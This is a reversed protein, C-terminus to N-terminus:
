EAGRLSAVAGAIDRQRMFGEGILAADVGIQEIYRMDQPTRIASESVICVEKPLSIRELLRETTHLDEQFTKLDRNNIGLMDPQRNMCMVREMEQANHVEVLSQLGVAQAIKHLANLEEDDLMAAILLVADAGWYKAEHIQYADFIFDKRLLPIKAIARIAQLYAADGQFFDQETLVSMAQVDSKLYAQAIAVPDFDERILGKSPSAKKVEAIISIKEYEKLARAFDLPQHNQREAWEQLAKLPMNEKATHLRIAKKEVIKDLITNSIM